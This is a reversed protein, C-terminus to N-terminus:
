VGYSVTQRPRLGADARALEGRVHEIVRALGAELPVEPRWGLLQAAKSAEGLLLEVESNAPRLREEATRVELEPRGLQALVAEVLEGISVSRGTALNVTEGEIGPASGALAFGRATDEVFCLDRRPSLAGLEIVGDERALAQTVITPLVARRSQRPGYTNFPRVVVVPLGFSRHYSLALQDAAVKSAAYPSQPRLPHAEDMPTYQATGYVESTSALVVRAGAARAAELVNLTGRVNVDLYSRPARYSYPIGILAALHFVVERGTLLERVQEADRVDGLVVEVADRLTPRLEDLFGARGTSGYRALARVQWGDEVLREVLHSGIFGGAGTVVCTKM